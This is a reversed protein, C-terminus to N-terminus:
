VLSVVTVVFKPCFFVAVFQWPFKLIMKEDIYQILFLAFLDINIICHLYYLAILEICNIRHM